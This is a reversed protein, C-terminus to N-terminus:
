LSMSLQEHKIAMCTRCPEVTMVGADVKWVLENGCAECKVLTVKPLAPPPEEKPPPDIPLSSTVDWTMCTRDTVTCKRKLFRGDTDTVERIVGLRVMEAFRPTVSHQQVNPNTAAIKKWVEVQTLPGHHYLVDYVEFRRESLLGQAKIADYAAKSTQRFM